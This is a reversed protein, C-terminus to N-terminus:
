EQCFDDIWDKAATYGLSLAMKLNACGEEKKGLASMETVGLLYFAPGNRKDLSIVENLSSIANIPDNNGLHAKAKNFHVQSSQPNGETAMEFDFLADEYQEMGLLALGRNYYIDVVGADLASALNYDAVAEKYRQLELKANGRNFFPKYNSSDLAIAEDFADIAESFNQKEFYAVGLGNYAQAEQPSIEVARQFYEAAKDFEGAGLSKFGEEVLEETSPSCSVLFSTLIIPLLIGSFANM